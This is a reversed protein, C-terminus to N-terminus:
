CGLNNKLKLLCKDMDPGLFGDLFLGFIRSVPNWGNEGFDSWIAKSGNGEDFLEIKGNKFVSNNQFSLEFEILKNTEFKTFKFTGQGMLDGNWELKSLGNSDLDYKYIMTSDLSKTIYFWSDLNEINKIFMYLSDKSCDFKQSRIIKYDSPLFQSIVFIAALSSFFVLLIKKIIIMNKLIANYLFAIYCCRLLYQTM